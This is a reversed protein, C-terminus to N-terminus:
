LPRNRSKSLSCSLLQLLRYVISVKLLQLEQIGTNVVRFTRGLTPLAANKWLRAQWTTLKFSGPNTSTRGTVWCWWDKSLVGKESRFKDRTQWVANKRPVWHFVIREVAQIRQSTACLTFVSLLSLITKCQYALYVQIGPLECDESENVFTMLRSLVELPCLLVQM